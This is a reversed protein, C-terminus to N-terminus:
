TWIIRFVTMTVVVMNAITATTILIIRNITDCDQKIGKIDDDQM